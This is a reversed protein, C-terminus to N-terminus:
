RKKAKEQIERLSKSLRALSQSFLVGWVRLAMDSPSIGEERAYRKIATVAKETPTGVRTM